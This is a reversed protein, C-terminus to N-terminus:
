QTIIMKGGVVIFKLSSEPPPVVQDLLEPSIDKWIRRIIARLESDCEIINGETKIQLGTRVLSFITANFSVTGDPNMPMNMAVLRQLKLIFIRLSFCQKYKNNNQFVKCAKRHPCLRGFGLPPNIRRLLNLADMHKIRGTADPDYEAWLSIFEGLHHAGLISWDRTLYDFNDM